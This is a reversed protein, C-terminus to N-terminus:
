LTIGATSTAEEYYEDKITEKVVKPAKNGSLYVAFADGEEKCGPGVQDLIDQEVNGKPDITVVYKAM